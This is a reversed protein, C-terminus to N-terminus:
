QKICSMVPFESHSPEKVGGDEKPIDEADEVADANVEDEDDGASLQNKKQM